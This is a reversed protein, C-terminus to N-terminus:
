IIGAIVIEAKQRLEKIVQNINNLEQVIERDSLEETDSLYTLCSYKTNSSINNYIAKKADVSMCSLLTYIQRINIELLVRQIARNDMKIFLESCHKCLDIYKYREDYLKNDDISFILKVDENDLSEINLGKLSKRLYEDEVKEPLLACLKEFMRIPNEGNQIMLVGHISIACLLAELGEYNNAFYNSCLIEEADDPFTGDVILMLGRVLIRRWGNVNEPWTCSEYGNPISKDNALKRAEEELNLLGEKRGINNLKRIKDIVYYAEVYSGEYRLQKLVADQLVKYKLYSM